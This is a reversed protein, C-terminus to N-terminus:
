VTEKRPFTLTIETGEGVKSQLTVEAHHYMAGHKVIALGLGTGGEKKSRSKDVRYFREFVREQQSAPIGIGTDRVTIWANKEDEGTEVTVSGNLKNYKIANDCLNDVMEDLIRPVGLVKAETGSLKLTVQKKEASGSLRDTVEKAISRLDVPELQDPVSNEELESMHIIDNVLTILRQAEQYITNSFDITDQPPVTGTRMLEAFGSISTLPTKLEHSVNATFERRISERKVSETVDVIVIVAGIVQKKELVPNAILQYTRDMHHMMTEAHKGSLVEGVATRFHETRNLTLVNGEKRETDLLTLAATNCSLLQANRDITLFGERMNETILSFEKQKKKAEELQGRITRQQSIIKHLFPALEDYVWCEEPYDLDMENIPKLVSKGVKSSLYASLALALLLIYVLPQLLGLVITVVTYQKTSVRLIDGDPLKKAYYVTKEICTKSYRVGTGSGTKLAEQVEARDAHNEMSKADAATDELVTGDPAILTVRQDRDSFESFFRKEDMEVAYSIYEAENRLEKKLQEEFVGFLVGLILVFCALLSLVTALFSSRFIKKTM